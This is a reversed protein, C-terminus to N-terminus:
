EDYGELNVKSKLEIKKIIKSGLEIKKNINSYMSINKIIAASLTINEKIKSELILSRKIRSIRKIIERIRIPVDDYGKTIIQDNFGIAGSYEGPAGIGYGKTVIRM